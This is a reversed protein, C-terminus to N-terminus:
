HFPDVKVPREERTEITEVSLVKNPYRIPYEKRWNEECFVQGLGILEKMRPTTRGYEYAVGLTDCADALLTLGRVILFRERNTIRVYRAVHKDDTM